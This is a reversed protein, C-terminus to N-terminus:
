GGLGLDFGGQEFRPSRGIGQLFHPVVNSKGLSGDGDVVELRHQAPGGFGVGPREPCEPKTKHGLAGPFGRLRRGIQDPGCDGTRQREAPERLDGGLKGSSLVVLYSGCGCVRQASDRSEGSPFLGAEALVLLPPALRNVTVPERPESGGVLQGHPLDFCRHPVELLPFLPEPLSPRRQRAETVDPHALDGIGREAHGNARLVPRALEETEGICQLVGNQHWFALDDDPLVDHVRAGQHEPARSGIGFGGCPAGQLQGLM